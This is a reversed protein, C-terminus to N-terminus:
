RLDPSIAKAARQAREFLDPARLRACMDTFDPRPGKWRLDDVTDFVAVDTRLTALTRFLLVDDWSNFLAKSLVYSNRVPVHWEKWDKPISELHSYRSLVAAASKAGWGFVGPFGDASDGVLALYDAISEPKVGFKAVVGEEDRVRNARRDVLVVRTGTICQSLDKDPTCIVVQDVAVDQAAKAAAAALM